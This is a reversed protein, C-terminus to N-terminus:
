SHCPLVFSPRLAPRRARLRTSLFHTTSTPPVELTETSKSPFPSPTSPGPPLRPFNPRTAPLRVNSRVRRDAGRRIRAQRTLSSSSVRNLCPVKPSHPGISQLPTDIGRHQPRSAKDIISEQSKRASEKKHRHPRRVNCRWGGFFPPLHTLRRIENKAM